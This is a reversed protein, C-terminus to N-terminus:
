REFRVGARVLHRVRDLGVIVEGSRVLWGGPGHAARLVTEAVMAVGGAIDIIGLTLCEHAPPRAGCEQLL